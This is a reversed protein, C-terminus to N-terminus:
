KGASAKSMPRWDTGRADFGPEDTVLYQGQQNAYAYKYSSPLTVTNGSQDKYDQQDLIYNCFDHTNADKGAMQAKFNAMRREGDQEFQHRLAVGNAQTRALGQQAIQLSIEACHLNWAPTTRMTSLVIQTEKVKAPSPNPSTMVVITPGVTWGDFDRVFTSGGYPMRQEMHSTRGIIVTGISSSEQKGNKEFTVKIFGSEHTFTATTNPYPTQQSSQQMATLPLQRSSEDVVQVNTWIGKQQMQDVFLHLFGLAGDIHLGKTPMNTGGSYAMNFPDVRDVMYTGDASQARLDINPLRGSWHIKDSAQWGQPLLYTYCVLNTRETDRVKCLSCQIGHGKPTGGIAPPALTAGLAAVISITFLVTGVFESAPKMTDVGNVKNIPKMRM